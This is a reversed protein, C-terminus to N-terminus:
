VFLVIMLAVWLGARLKYDVPDIVSWTIKARLWIFFPISLGVLVVLARDTEGM